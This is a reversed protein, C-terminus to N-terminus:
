TPAAFLRSLFSIKLINLAFATRVVEPIDAAIVAVEALLWLYYEVHLPYEAKCLDSLQVRTTVGLNAALSQIILAFIHSVLIIWHLSANTDTVLWRCAEQISHPCM